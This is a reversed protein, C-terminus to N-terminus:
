AGRQVAAPREAVGLRGADCGGENLSRKWCCAGRPTVVPVQEGRRRATRDVRGVERTGEGNEEALGAEAADM